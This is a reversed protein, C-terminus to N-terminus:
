QSVKRRPPDFRHRLRKCEGCERRGGGSPYQRGFEAYSHGQPCHTRLRQPLGQRGSRNNVSPPVVAMHEPNFCRRHACDRGGLCSADENHCRHDIVMGVPIPGVLLEYAVRHTRQIRGEHGIRGYGDVYLSGTYLWCGSATVERRALLRDLAPAHKSITM